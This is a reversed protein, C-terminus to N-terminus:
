IASEKYRRLALKNMKLSAKPARALVEELLEKMPGAQRLVANMERISNPATIVLDLNSISIESFSGKIALSAGAVVTANLQIEIVGGWPIFSRQRGDVTELVGEDTIEVSQRAERRFFWLMSQYLVWILVVFILVLSFLVIGAIFTSFISIALVSLGAGLLVYVSEAAVVLKRYGSTYIFGGRRKISINKLAGGVL